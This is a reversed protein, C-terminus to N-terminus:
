SVLADKVIGTLLFKRAQVCVVSVFEFCTNGSDKGFLFGSTTCKLPEIASPISWNVSRVRSSAEPDTCLRSQRTGSLCVM